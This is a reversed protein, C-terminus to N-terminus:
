DCWDLCQARGLRNLLFDRAGLYEARWQNKGEEGRLPLVLAHRILHAWISVLSIVALLPNANKLFFLFRNRTYYYARWYSRGGETSGGGVHEVRAAPVLLTKWGARNFRLCLDTDEFYLFYDEDFDGAEALAQRRLLLNSGSIWQCELVGDRRDTPKLFTKARFYDVTGPGSAVYEGGDGTYVMAGVAGARTHGSAARMLLALSDPSVRTDNNLLWIWDAGADLCRKIGANSGGAFGLNEPIELYFLDPFQRAIASGSKDPSGNDVLLIKLNPYHLARLSALCARTYHSGQWHLVIAWVSPTTSNDTM